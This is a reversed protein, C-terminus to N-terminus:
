FKLFHRLFCIFWTFVGPSGFVAMSLHRVLMDWASVQVTCYVHREDLTSQAVRTAPDQRRAQAHGPMIPTMAERDPSKAEGGTPISLEHM